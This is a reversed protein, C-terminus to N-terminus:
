DQDNGSGGGREKQEKTELAEAWVGGWRMIKDRYYSRRTADDREMVTKSARYDEPDLGMQAAQRLEADSLVDAAPPPLVGKLEAQERIQKRVWEGYGITDDAAVLADLAERERFSLRLNIAERKKAM